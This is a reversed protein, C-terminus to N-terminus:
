CVELDVFRTREFKNRRETNKKLGVYVRFRLAASMRLWVGGMASKGDNGQMLGGRFGHFSNTQVPKTKRHKKGARCICPFALRSVNGAMGGWLQSEM